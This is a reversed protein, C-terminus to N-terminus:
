GRCLDECPLRSGEERAGQAGRRAAQRHERHPCFGRQRHLRLMRARLPPLPRTRAPAAVIALRSPPAPLLSPLFSVVSRHRPDHVISGPMWPSRSHWWTGRRSAFHRGRAETFWGSFVTTHCKVESKPTVARAKFLEFLYIM